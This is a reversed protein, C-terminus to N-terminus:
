NKRIYVDLFLFSNWLTPIHKAIYSATFSNYWKVKGGTILSLEMEERGHWYKTSDSKKIKTKAPKHSM